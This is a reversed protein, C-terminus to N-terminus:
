KQWNDRMLARTSISAAMQAEEVGMAILGEKICLFSNVGMVACVLIIIASVPLLIKTRIGFRRTKRKEM